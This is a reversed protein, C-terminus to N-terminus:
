AGSLRITQRGRGDLHGLEISEEGIRAIRYRGDIIDGERGYYVFRGDSLVALRGGRSPANVIGIFKLAIPPPPPPPPPGSPQVPEVAAGPSKRVTAPGEDSPPPAVPQVRFPNRRDEGLAPRTAKLADLKVPPVEGAPSQPTIPAARAVGRSSAPTSDSQGTWVWVLVLVGLVALLVFLRRRDTAM